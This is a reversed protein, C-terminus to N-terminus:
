YKVTKNEGVVGAFAGQRMLAEREPHAILWKNKKLLLAAEGETHKQESELPTNTGRPLIVIARFGEEHVRCPSLHLTTQYLEIATGQPVYFVSEDGIYFKNDRIQWIHGLVLCFDSVAVIIESGKHYEFGNYTSNVGNCYGIQIPMEGYVENQVRQLPSAAELAADSPVYINGQSPIITHQRMYDMAASFDYDTLVRGFTKFEDAHVAYIPVDNRANLHELMM